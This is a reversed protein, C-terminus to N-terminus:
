GQSRGRPLVFVRRARDSALTEPDYLKSLAGSRHDLLDANADAFAAFGGGSTAFRREGVLAVYAWTITEHFLSTKGHADAFRRITACVHDGARGFPMAELCHWAFRVHNRHDLESLPLSCDELARVFALDDM